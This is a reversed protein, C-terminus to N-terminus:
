NTIKLTKRSISDLKFFPDIQKQINKHAKIAIEGGAVNYGNNKFFRALSTTGTKNFGIQFVKPRSMTKAQNLMNKGNATMSNM